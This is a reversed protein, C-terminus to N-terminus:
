GALLVVTLDPRGLADPPVAALAAASRRDAAVVVGAGAGVDAPAPSVTGLAAGVGGDGDGSVDVRLVTLDRAVAGAPGFLDVRQGAELMSASATDALAVHVAVTGEPQGDLLSTASLRTATLAEGRGVPASVRRGVVAALRGPASPPAVEVPWMRVRVAAADVVQGVALARTTVVVPRTAAHGPARAVALVGM